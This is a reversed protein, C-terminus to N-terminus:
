KIRITKPDFNPKPYTMKLDELTDVLIKLIAWDRYWKKNAPVVYWPAENTSTEAVAEQYAAM